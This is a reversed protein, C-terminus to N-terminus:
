RGAARARDVAERVAALPDSGRPEALEELRRELTILQSRASTMSRRLRAMDRRRARSRATQLERGMAELEVALVGVERLTPNACAPLPGLRALLATVYVRYRYGDPTKHSKYARPIRVGGPKLARM